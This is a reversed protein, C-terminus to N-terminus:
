KFYGENPYQKSTESDKEHHIVIHQRNRSIAMFLAIFWGIVSWGIFINILLITGKNYKKNSYAIISPLFYVTIGFLTLIALLTNM